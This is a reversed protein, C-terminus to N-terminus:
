ESVIRLLHSVLSIDTDTMNELYKELSLWLSHFQPIFINIFSHNSKIPMFIWMASDFNKGYGYKGWHFTNWM